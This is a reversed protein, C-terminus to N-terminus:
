VIFTSTLFIWTPTILDRGNGVLVILIAVKQRTAYQSKPTRAWGPLFMLAASGVRVSHQSAHPHRPWRDVRTGGDRPRAASHRLPGPGSRTRHPSQQSVAGAVCCLSARLVSFPPVGVGLLNRRTHPHRQSPSANAPTCGYCQVARMGEGSCGPNGRREKGSGVESLAPEDRSDSSATEQVRPNSDSPSSSAKVGGEGPELKHTAPAGPLPPHPRRRGRESPGPATAGGPGPASGPRASRPAAASFNLHGLQLRHCWRPCAPSRAPGAGAGPCCRCVRAPSGVGRGAAAGPTELAGLDDYFVGVNGKYNKKKRPTPPPLHPLRSYNPLRITHPFHNCWDSPPSPNTQVTHNSESGCLNRTVRQTSSQCLQKGGWFCDGYCPSRSLYPVAAGSAAPVGPAWGCAASPRRLCLVLEWSAIGM